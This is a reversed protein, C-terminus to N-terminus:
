KKKNTKKDEILLADIVNEEKIEIISENIPEADKKNFIYGFIELFSYIM